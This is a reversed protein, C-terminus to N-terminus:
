TDTGALGPATSTHVAHLIQRAILRISPKITQWYWEAWHRAVPDIVTWRTEFTILTGREAVAHLELAIAITGSRPRAYTTFEARSVPHWQPVQTWFRGAVGLLLEEGPREGLLIWEGGLLLEEFAPVAGPPRLRVPRGRVWALTGLPAARWGSRLPAVSDYTEAPPAPVLLHEALAFDYWPTFADILARDETAM